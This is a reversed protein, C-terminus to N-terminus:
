HQARPGSAAPLILTATTGVPTAGTLEIRGRHATAIWQAISLGLGAGPQRGERPPAAGRVFRDFVRDRDDLSIGPGTDTIAVYAEGEMVGVAVTIAGRPPTFKIANDLLIMIAQRLLAPDAKVDAQEFTTIELSLGAVTALSRAAGCSDLVLDDLHCAVPEIPREGADAHALLLLDGVLGSLRESEAAIGELAERYTATDRPQLLAVEARTRLVAVPTRLEHAADAMFQRMRSIGLEVPEMSRDVLIRGALAVLLLAVLAAAGFATILSAYQEELEVEDAVVVAIRYLEGSVVFSESHIRLTRDNTVETTVDLTAGAPTRRAADVVWPEADTPRIPAGDASMLYLSRDPIRLEDLADVVTGTAGAELDRIRSARIVEATARALSADLEAQFQQRITLFLGVGLLGLMLAMTLLYWRTLQRRATRVATSRPIASM